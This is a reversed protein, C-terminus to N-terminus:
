SAATPTWLPYGGSPPAHRFEMRNRRRGTFSIHLHGGRKASYWICQDFEVGMDHVLQAIEMARMGPIKLDVAEGILHQSRIYGGIAENLAECRFWSTPNVPLGAADRIPDLVESCLLMVALKARRGPENNIGLEAAKTSRTVERWTFHKGPRRMDPRVVGM